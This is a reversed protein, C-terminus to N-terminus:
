GNALAAWEPLTLTEPRRSPDVPWAAPEHGFDRLITGIQKRRRTFGFQVLSEFREPHTLLAPPAPRRRLHVVSSGVRPPPWFCAAPVNRVRSIDFTWSMRVTLLGYLEDGPAALLRDAVDSQLMVTISVPAFAPTALDYLIRSGVSYPLNSVVRVPDPRLFDPWDTKTADAHLLTFTTLDAFRQRLHDVLRADLEIATVHAAKALLGETMVGLGPGVEVVHDGPATESADIILDRMNADTLFNQGLSKGPRFDISDLYARLDRTRTLCVSRPDM